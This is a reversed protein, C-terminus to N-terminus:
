NFYDPIKMLHNEMIHLDILLDTFLKYINHRSIWNGIMYFDIMFKIFKKEYKKDLFRLANISQQESYTNAM